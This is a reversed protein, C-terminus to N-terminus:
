LWVVLRRAQQPAVGGLTVGATVCWVKGELATEATNDGLIWRPSIAGPFV